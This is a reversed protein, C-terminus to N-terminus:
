DFAESEEYGAARVAGMLEEIAGPEKPASETLVWPIDETVAVDDEIRVGIGHWRPHVGESDPPCYLGPEVTVVMGPALTRWKGELSYNGVDHVDLGLWHGTRHPFFRRHAGQELLGDIEGDLWGLEVMGEILIRTARRHFADFDRGSRVEEIAARQACLVIDYVARQEASFHGNVPFTRTIDAAYGALEAGADILVLDGDQLTDRQTVYHLVCANAGGAVISPYAPEGGQRRFVHELEAALTYEPMGPQAVQMARRHAAVSVGAARRMLELEETDKVLRLEHLNHDLLELMAPARASGRSHRRAAQLWRLLQQDWREDRGLPAVVRERGALLAPLHQDIESLPWAQDAGYETCAGEPGIRSGSWREEEPARERVFLIFSGTERGPVLVAVADPEPFATLYHFDSDQRFPHAVDRNRPQELAAPIVAAAQEGLKQALRERHTKAMQLPDPASSM